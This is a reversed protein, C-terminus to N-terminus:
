HAAEHALIFLAQQRTAIFVVAPIVVLPHWWILAVTVAVAILGVTELIALTSRWPDLVTLRKIVDPPLSNHRREDDRFEEGGHAALNKGAPDKGSEGGSDIM